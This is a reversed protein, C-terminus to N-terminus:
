KWEEVTHETKWGADLYKWGTSGVVRCLKVDRESYSGFGRHGELNVHAAGPAQRIKVGRNKAESGSCWGKWGERGCVCQTNKDTVEHAKCKSNQVHKGRIYFYFM